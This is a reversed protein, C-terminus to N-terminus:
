DLRPSLVPEPRYRIEMLGAGNDFATRASQDAEFRNRKNPSAPPWMDLDRGRCSCLSYRHNGVEIVEILLDREDCTARGSDAISRCHLESLQAGVDDYATAGRM